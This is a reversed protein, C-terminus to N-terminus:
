RIVMGPVNAEGLGEGDLTSLTGNDEHWPKQCQPAKHRGELEFFTYLRLVCEM